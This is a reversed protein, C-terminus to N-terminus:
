PIFFCQILDEPRQPLRLRVYDYIQYDLANRERFREKEVAGIEAEQDDREATNLRGGSVPPRAALRAALRRSGPSNAHSRLEGLLRMRFTEVSRDLEETIGIFFYRELVKVYNAANCGLQVALYNQTDAIFARLSKLGPTGALDPRTKRTYYFLSKSLDLPDRLMTFIRFRSDSRLSPYREDISYGPQNWHGALLVNAHLAALDIAAKRYSEQDPFSDEYDAVVAFWQYLSCLFSTGGCKPVHHYVFSPEM